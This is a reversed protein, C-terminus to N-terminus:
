VEYNENRRLELARLHDGTTPRTKSFRGRTIDYGFPFVTDCVASVAAVTEEDETEMEVWIWGIRYDENNHATFGKYEVNVINPVNRLLDFFRGATAESILRNPFVRLEPKVDM